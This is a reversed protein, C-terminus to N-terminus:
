LSAGSLLWGGGTEPDGIEERYRKTGKRDVSHIWDSYM